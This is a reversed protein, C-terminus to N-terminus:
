ILKTTEATSNKVATQNKAITRTPIRQSSRKSTNGRPKACRACSYPGGCAEHCRDDQSTHVGVALNLLMTAANLSPLLQLLLPCLTRICHPPRVSGRLRCGSRSRNPRLQIRQASARNGRGPQEPEPEGRDM